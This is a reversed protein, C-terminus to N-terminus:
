RLFSASLHVREILSHTMMEAVTLTPNGTALFVSLEEFFTTSVIRQILILSKPFINILGLINGDRENFYDEGHQLFAQIGDQITKYEAELLKMSENIYQFLSKIHTMIQTINTLNNTESVIHSLDLYKLQLQSEQAVLL